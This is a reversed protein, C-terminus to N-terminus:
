PMLIKQTCITGKKGSVRLIYVGKRAKPFAFFHIGRNLIGRHIESLVRGSPDILTVKLFQDRQINLVVGDRMVKLEVSPEGGSIASEEERVRNYGLYINRHLTDGAHVYVSEQYTGYEPHSASLLYMGEGLGFLWYFGLNVGEVCSLCSQYGMAGSATVSANELYANGPGRVTGFIDGYDDNALGPTPTLDFYWSMYQDEWGMMCSPGIINLRSASAGAPPTPFKTPSYFGWNNWDVNGWIIWDVLSGNDNYLRLTDAEDGLSFVGSTNWTGVILYFTDVINWSDIVATGEHTVITWGGVDGLSIDPEAHLEIWESSGPGTKIENVITVVYPNAFLGGCFSLVLVFLFGRM